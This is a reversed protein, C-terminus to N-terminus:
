RARLRPLPVVEMRTLALPVVAEGRYVLTRSRYRGQWPARYVVTWGRDADVHWAEPVDAAAAAVLMAAPYGAGGRHREFFVVLQTRHISSGGPGPALVAVDARIVGLSGGLLRASREVSWAAPVRFQAALDDAPSPVPM